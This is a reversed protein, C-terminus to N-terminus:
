SAYSVLLTISARAAVLNALAAVMEALDACVEESAIDKQIKKCLMDITKDVEAYDKLM